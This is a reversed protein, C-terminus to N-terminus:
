PAVGKALYAALDHEGLGTARRRKGLGLQWLMRSVTNEIRALGFLDVPDGALMAARKTEAAVTLDALREVELLTTETIGPLQASFLTILECRRRWARSRKDIRTFRRVPTSYGSPACIADM